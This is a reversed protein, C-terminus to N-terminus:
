PPSTPGSHRRKLAAAGPLRALAEPDRITGLDDCLRLAELAGQVDALNRAPEHEVREELDHARRPAMGPRPRALSRAARISIRAQPRSRVSRRGLPRSGRWSGPTAPAGRVSYGRMRRPRPPMIGTTGSTIPTPSRPSPGAPRTGRASSCRAGTSAANSGNLSATGSGRWAVRGVAPSAKGRFFGRPQDPSTGPAPPGRRIRARAGARCPRMARGPRLRGSRVRPHRAGAARHGVRVRRAPDRRARRTGRGDPRPSMLIVGLYARSLADDPDRDIAERYAIAAEHYAAEAQEHKQAKRLANALTLRAGASDPHLAAAATLFPIAEIPRYRESM